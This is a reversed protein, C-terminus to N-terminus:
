RVLRLRNGVSEGPLWGGSGPVISRGLETLLRLPRVYEADPRRDPVPQHLGRGSGQAGSAIELQKRGSRVWPIGGRGPVSHLGHRRVRLRRPVTLGLVRDGYDNGDGVDFPFPPAEGSDGLVCGPSMEDCPFVSLDAECGTGPALDCDGFGADCQDVECRGNACLATANDLGCSDEAGAEDIAGDCDNDIGDCVEPPSIVCPSTVLYFLDGGLPPM